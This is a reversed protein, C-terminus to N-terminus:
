NAKLGIKSHKYSTTKTSALHDTFIKMFQCSVLEPNFQPSCTNLLLICPQPWWSTSLGSSQHSRPGLMRQDRSAMQSQCQQHLRNCAMMSVGSIPDPGFIVAPATDTKPKILAIVAPGNVAIEDTLEVVTTMDNTAVAGDNATATVGAIM